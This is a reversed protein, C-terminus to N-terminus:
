LEGSNKVLLHGTFPVKENNMGTQKGVVQSSRTLCFAVLSTRKREWWQWTHSLRRWFSKTCARAVLKNILKTASFKLEKFVLPSRLQYLSLYPCVDSSLCIWNWSNLSKIRKCVACYWSWYSLVPSSCVSWWIEIKVSVTEVGFGLGAQLKLRFEVIKTLVAETLLSLPSRRSLALQFRVTRIIAQYEICLSLYIIM